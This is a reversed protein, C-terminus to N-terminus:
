SGEKKEVKSVGRKDLFEKVGDAHEKLREAEQIDHKAQKSLVVEEKSINKMTDKSTSDDDLNGEVIDDCMKDFKPSRLLKYALWMILAAVILFALRFYIM